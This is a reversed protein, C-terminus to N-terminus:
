VDLDGDMNVETVYIFEMWTSRQSMYLRWGHQGRHCIYDGDMNVETVYLRWGHQGRHCIYDGDMNVETVYIIEMWTSRQSM